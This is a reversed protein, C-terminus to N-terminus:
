TRNFSNERTFAVYYRRHRTPTAALRFLKIARYKKCTWIRIRGVPSAIIVPASNSPKKEWLVFSQMTAATRREDRQQSCQGTSEVTDVVLTFIKKQNPFRRSSINPLILRILDYRNGNPQVAFVPPVDCCPIQGSTVTCADGTDDRTECRRCPQLNDVALKIRGMATTETPVPVVRRRPRVSAISGHSRRGGYPRVTFRRPRLAPPPPCLPPPDSVDSNVIRVRTRRGYAHPSRGCIHVDCVKKKYCYYVYLTLFFFFDYACLACQPVHTYVFCRRHSTDSPRGRIKYGRTRCSSSSSSPVFCLGM